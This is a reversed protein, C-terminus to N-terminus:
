INLYEIFNKTFEEEWGKYSLGLPLTALLAEKIDDLSYLPKNEKLYKEANEKKAFIKVNKQMTNKEAIFESLLLDSNVCYYIDGKFIEVRDETILIPEKKLYLSNDFNTLGSDTRVMLNVDQLEFAEIRGVNTLTNITFIEGDSLRKISYIKFNYSDWYKQIEEYLAGKQVEDLTAKEFLYKGNDRKTFINNHYIISLIEYDKEVVEEWFESSPECGIEVCCHGQKFVGDKYTAITGNTKHKYTKM